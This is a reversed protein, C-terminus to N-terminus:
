TRPFLQRYTELYVTMQSDFEPEYSEFMTQYDIDDRHKLMYVVVDKHKRNSRVKYILRHNSGCRIRYINRTTKLRKSNSPIPNDGLGKLIQKVEDKEDDTFGLEELKSDLVINHFKDVYQPKPTPKKRPM